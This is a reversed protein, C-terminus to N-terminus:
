IGSGFILYVSGEGGNRFPTSTAFDAYGDGDHDGVSATWGAADGMTEGALAFHADPDLELVGGTQGGYVGYIRGPSNPNFHEPAGIVVDDRGDADLDGVGLAGGAFDDAGGYLVLDANFVTDAPDIPGFHVYTAGGVFAHTLASPAATMLDIYGDNDFDGAGLSFGLLGLEPPLYGVAGTAIQTDASSVPQDGSVPGNFVDTRGMAFDYGVSAVALDDCGDGTLDRVLLNMGTGDDEIDGYVRGFAGSTDQPGAQPALLYVVGGEPVAFSSDFAGMALDPIGNFDLDGAGVASGADEYEVLGYIVAYADALTYDGSLGTPDSFLAVGGTQWGSAPNILAEDPIALDAVGDGTIDGVLSLRETRSAPFTATPLQLDTLPRDAGAFLRVETTTGVALDDFGNATVDGVFALPYGLDEGAAGDAVM